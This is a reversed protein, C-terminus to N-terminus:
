RSTRPAHETTRPRQQGAACVAPYVELRLPPTAGVARAEGERWRIPLLNPHSGGSDNARRAGMFWGGCALKEREEETSSLAPTLLREQRRSPEHPPSFGCWSEGPEIQRGERHGRGMFTAGTLGHSLALPSACEVVSVRQGPTRSWAIADHLAGTRQRKANRHLPKMRSNTRRIRM